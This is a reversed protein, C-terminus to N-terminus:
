PTREPGGRRAARLSEFEKERAALGVRSAVLMGVLGVFARGYSPWIYAAYGGMQLFEALNEMM